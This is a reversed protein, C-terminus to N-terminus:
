NRRRSGRRQHQAQTKEKASAKVAGEEPSFVQSIQEAKEKLKEELRRRMWERGEALVEEEMEGLSQFIEKEDKM